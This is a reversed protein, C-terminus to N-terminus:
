AWFEFGQNQIFTFMEKQNHTIAYGMYKNATYLSMGRVCLLWKTVDNYEPHDLLDYIIPDFVQDHVDNYFNLVTSVNNWVITGEDKFARKLIVGCNISRAAIYFSGKVNCGKEKLLTYYRVSGNMIAYQLVKAYTKDSTMPLMANICKESGCHLALGLFSPLPRNEHGVSPDPKFDHPDYFDFPSKTIIEDVSRKELLRLVKDKDDDFIAREITDEPYRHYIWDKTVDKSSGNYTVQVHHSPFIDAFCPFTEKNRKTIEEAKFGGIDLVRRLIPRSQQFIMDLMENKKTDDEMLKCYLKALIEDKNMRRESMDIINYAIFKTHDNGYEQLEEVTSDFNDEKVLSITRQIDAYDNVRQDLEQFQEQTLRKSM